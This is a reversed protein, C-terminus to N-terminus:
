QVIQLIADSKALLTGTATSSIQATAELETATCTPLVTYTISATATAFPAFDLQTQLPDIAACGAPYGSGPGLYIGYRTLTTDQTTGTCNLATLTVTASGGPAVSAPSFAFRLVEIGAACGTPEPSGSSAPSPSPDAATAPAAASRARGPATAAAAGTVAGAALLVAACILTVAAPAAARRVTAPTRPM